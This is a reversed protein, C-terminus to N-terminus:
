TIGMTVVGTIIPLDTIVPAIFAHDGGAAVEGIVGPIHMELVSTLMLGTTVLGLVLAGALGPIIVSASDGPTRAHIITIVMGPDTIIVPVMYLQQDMYMPM